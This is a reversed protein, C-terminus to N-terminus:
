SFIFNQVTLLVERIQPRFLIFTMMGGGIFACCLTFSLIVDIIEALKEGERTKM